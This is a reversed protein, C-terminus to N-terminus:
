TVPDLSVAEEQAKPEPSNSSTPVRQVEDRQLFSYRPIIEYKMLCLVACTAAVILILLVSFFIWGIKDGRPVNLYLFGSRSGLENTAECQYLGSLDTTLKTFQLMAGHPSVLHPLPQGNRTWTFTARPNAETMCIFSDEDKKELKVEEPPYYVQIEFSWTKQEVLAEHSVVCRVSSGHIEKTPRGYLTTTRTFTGNTNQTLSSNKTVTQKLTSTDWEVSPAPKADAATCTALLVDKDGLTPKDDRVIISPSVLVSLPIDTKFTGTPFVSFICTYTGEDDLNVNSLQLSGNKQHFDGIFKFRKDDGNVFQVKDSKITLFNDTQPKGKTKRKWSIQELSEDDKLQQTLKCPLITTGGFLAASSGGTVQSLAKNQLLHEELGLATAKQDAKIEPSYEDLPLLLGALSPDPVPM